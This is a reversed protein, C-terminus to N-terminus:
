RGQERAQTEARLHDLVVERCKCTYVPGRPPGLAPDYEVVGYIPAGCTPCDSVIEIPDTTEGRDEEDDLDEDDDDDHRKGM